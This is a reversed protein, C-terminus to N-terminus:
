LQNFIEDNEIQLAAVWYALLNKLSPDITERIFLKLTMLLASNEQHLMRYNDIHVANLHARKHQLVTEISQPFYLAIMKDIIAKEIMLFRNAARTISQNTNYQTLPLSKDYHLILQDMLKDVRDDQCRM